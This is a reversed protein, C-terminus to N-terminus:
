VRFGRFLYVRGPAEHSKTAVWAGKFLFRFILDVVYLGMVVALYDTYIYTYVYKCM